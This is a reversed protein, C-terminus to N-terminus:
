ADMDTACQNLFTAPYGPRHRVFYDYSQRPVIPLAVSAIFEHTVLLTTVCAIVSEITLLCMYPRPVPRAACWVAFSFTRHLGITEYLLRHPWASCSM